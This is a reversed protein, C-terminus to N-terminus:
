KSSSVFVVVIDTLIKLSKMFLKIHQKPPCACLFVSTHFRNLFSSVITEDFFV